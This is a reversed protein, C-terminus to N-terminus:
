CITLYISFIYLQEVLMKFLMQEQFLLLFFSIYLVLLFYIPQESENSQIGSVSKSNIEDLEMFGKRKSTNAKWPRICRLLRATWFKYKHAFLYDTVCNYFLLVRRVMFLGSLRNIRQGVGCWLRFKCNSSWETTTFHDITISSVDALRKLQLIICNTAKTTIGYM